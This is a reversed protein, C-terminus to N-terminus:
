FLLNVLSFKSTRRKIDEMVLNAIIASVLSGRATGFVQQDYNGVFMFYTM